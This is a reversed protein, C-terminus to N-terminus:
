SETKTTEDLIEDINEISYFVEKKNGSFDQLIITKSENKDILRTLSTKDESIEFGEVNEIPKNTKIILLISRKNESFNEIKNM